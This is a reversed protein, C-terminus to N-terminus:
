AKSRDGFYSRLGPGVATVGNSAPTRATKDSCGCIGAVTIPSRAPQAPDIM